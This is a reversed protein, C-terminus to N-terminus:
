VTAVAKEAKKKYNDTFEHLAMRCAERWESCYDDLMDRMRYAISDKNELILDVSVSNYTKGDSEDKLVTEVDEVDFVHEQEYYASILEQSTLKLKAKTGNINREIFM